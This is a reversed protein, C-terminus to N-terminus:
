SQPHGRDQHIRRRSACGRPMALAPASRGRPPAKGRRSPCRFRPEPSVGHYVKEGPIRHVRRRQGATSLAVQPPALTTSHPRRSLPQACFIRESPEFGERGAASRSGAPVGRRSTCHACRAQLEPSLANPQPGLPRLNSDQWAYGRSAARYDGPPKAACYPREPATQRSRTPISRPNSLHGLPQLHRERFATHHHAV